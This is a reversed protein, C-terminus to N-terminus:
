PTQDHYRFLAHRCRRGPPDMRRRQLSDPQLPSLLTDYDAKPIGGSAQPWRWQTRIWEAYDNRGMEEGKWVGAPLSYLGFTIFMGFRTHSMWNADSAAAANTDVNDVTYPSDAARISPSITHM